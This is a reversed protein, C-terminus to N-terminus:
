DSVVDFGTTLNSSTKHKDSKGLHHMFNQRANRLKSGGSQQPPPLHQQDGRAGEVRDVLKV